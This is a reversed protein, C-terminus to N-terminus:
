REDESYDRYWHYNCNASLVAKGTQTPVVFEKCQQSTFLISTNPDLDGESDYLVFLMWANYVDIQIALPKSELSLSSNMQFTSMGCKMLHSLQDLGPSSLGQQALALHFTELRM